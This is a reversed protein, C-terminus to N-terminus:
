VCAVLVTPMQHVYGICIARFFYAFIEGILSNLSISLVSVQDETTGDMFVAPGQM